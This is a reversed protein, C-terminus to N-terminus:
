NNYKRSNTCSKSNESHDVIAQTSEEEAKKNAAIRKSLLSQQSFNEEAM